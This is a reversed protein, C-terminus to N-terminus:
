LNESSGVFPVCLTIEGMAPEVILVLGLVADIGSHIVVGEASFSSADTLASITMQGEEYPLKQFTAHENTKM